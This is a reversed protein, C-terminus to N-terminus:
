QLVYRAFEEREKRAEEQAARAAKELDADRHMVAAIVAGVVVGVAMVVLIGVLISRDTPQTHNLQRIDSINFNAMANCKDKLVKYVKAQAAYM